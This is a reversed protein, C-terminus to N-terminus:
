RGTKEFINKANIISGITQLLYFGNIKKLNKGFDKWKKDIETDELVVADGKLNKMKMKIKNNNLNNDNKENQKLKNKINTNNEILNINLENEIIENNIIEGLKDQTKQYYDFVIISNSKIKNEVFSLKFNNNSGFVM